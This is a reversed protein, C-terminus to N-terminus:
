FWVIFLHTIGCIKRSNSGTKTSKGIVQSSGFLGPHSVMAKPGSQESRALHRSYIEAFNDQGNFRHPFDFLWSESFLQWHKDSSNYNGTELEILCSITSHQPVESATHWSSGGPMKSSKLLPKCHRKSQISFNWNKPACNWIQISESAWSNHAEIKKVDQPLDCLNHSSLLAPSAVQPCGWGDNATLRSGSSSCHVQDPQYALIQM